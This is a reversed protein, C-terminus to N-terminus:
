APPGMGPSPPLILVVLYTKKTATNFFAGSESGETMMPAGIGKSVCEPLSMFIQLRHINCGEVLEETVLITLLGKNEAYNILRVYIRQRAVSTRAVREKNASGAGSLGSSIEWSSISAGGLVSRSSGSSTAISRDGGGGSAGFVILTADVEAWSTSM